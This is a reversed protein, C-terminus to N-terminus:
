LKLQTARMCVTSLKPQHCHQRGAEKTRGKGWALGSTGGPTEEQDHSHSHAAIGLEANLSWVSPAQFQGYPSHKCWPFQCRSCM